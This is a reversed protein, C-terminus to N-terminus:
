GAILPRLLLVGLRLGGWLVLALLLAARPAAFFQSRLARLASDPAALLWLSLLGNGIIAGVGFGVIQLAPYLVVFSLFEHITAFPIAMGVLVLGSGRPAAPLALNLPRVIRGAFPLLLQSLPALLAALLRALLPPWPRSEASAFSL